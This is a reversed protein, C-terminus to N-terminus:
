YSTALWPQQKGNLQNVYYLPEYIMGGSFGTGSSAYPNFVCTWLSGSVNDIVVTGGMKVNSVTRANAQGYLGPVAVVLIAALCMLRFPRGVVRSISRPEAM